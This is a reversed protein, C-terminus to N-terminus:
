LYKKMFKHLRERYRTARDRYNDMDGTQCNEQMQGALQRLGGVEKMIDRKYSTLEAPISLSSLSRTREHLTATSGIVGDMNNNPLHKDLILGITIAMGEIEPYALPLLAAATQEFAEHLEPMIAFVANSDHRTCADGYGKVLRGFTARNENFRRLRIDAEFNPAMDKIDAFCRVFEDGAALLVTYNKEPWAQHWAPAMVKHFAEFPKHGKEGAAHAPCSSEQGKVGPAAVLLLALLIRTSKM